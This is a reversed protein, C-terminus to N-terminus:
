PKLTFEILGSDQTVIGYFSTDTAPSNPLIGWYYTNSGCTLFVNSNTFLKYYGMGVSNTNAPVFANTVVENEWSKNITVYCDINTTNTILPYFYHQPDIINDVVLEDGASVSSWIGKMDDGLARGTSTTKKVLVWDVKVPASNLLFTKTSSPNVDSQYVNDISISIPLVLDNEVTFSLPVPTPTATPRLTKTATATPRPTKTATATPLSTNTPTETKDIATVSEVPQLNQSITTPTLPTPSALFQGATLTFALATEAAQTERIPQESQYIATGLGILAVLLTSAAPILVHILKPGPEPKSAM